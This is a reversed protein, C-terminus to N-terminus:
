QWVEYEKHDLPTPTRLTLERTIFVCKKRVDGRKTDVDEVCSRLLFCYVIRAVHIRVSEIKPSAAGM